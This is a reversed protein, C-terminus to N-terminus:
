FDFDDFESPFRKRKKHRNRVKRRKAFQYNNIVARIVFILIFFGAIGIIWLIVVRVNVFVIKEETEPSADTEEETDAPETEMNQRDELDFTNDAEGEALDVTASGM